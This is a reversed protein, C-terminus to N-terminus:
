SFEIPFGALLGTKRRRALVQSGSISMVGILPEWQKERKGASFQSFGVNFYCQKIRWQIFCHKV